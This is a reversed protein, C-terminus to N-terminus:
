IRTAPKLDTSGAARCFTLTGIATHSHKTASLRLPRCTSGDTRTELPGAPTASVVTPEADINQPVITYSTTVESTAAFAVRAADVLRRREHDDLLRRGGTGRM